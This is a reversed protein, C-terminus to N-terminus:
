SFDVLHPSKIECKLHHNFSCRLNQRPNQFRGRVRLVPSLLRFDQLLASKNEAGIGAIFSIQHILLRGPLGFWLFPWFSFNMFKARKQSNQHKEKPFCARNVNLKQELIGRRFNMFQGEKPKTQRPSEQIYRSLPPVRVANGSLLHLCFNNNDNKKKKEIELSYPVRVQCGWTSTHCTCEDRNRSALVARQDSRWGTEAPLSDGSNRASIYFAREPSKSSIKYHTLGFLARFFFFARWVKHHQSGALDGSLGSSKM